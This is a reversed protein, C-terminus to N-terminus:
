TLLLITSSFGKSFVYQVSLRVVRVSFRFGFTQKDASPLWYFGLPRFQAFFSTIFASHRLFPITPTIPCWFWSIQSNQQAHTPSKKQKRLERRPPEKPTPGSRRGPPSATTPSVEGEMQAKWRGEEIPSHEAGGYAEFRTTTSESGHKENTTRRV